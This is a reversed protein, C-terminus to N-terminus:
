FQAKKIHEDWITIVNEHKSQKEMMGTCKSIYYQFPLWVIHSLYILKWWSFVLRILLVCLGVVLSKHIM